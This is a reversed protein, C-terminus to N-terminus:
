GNSRISDTRDILIIRTKLRSPMALDREERYFGSENENYIEVLVLTRVRYTEERM